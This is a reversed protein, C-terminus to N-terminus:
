KVSLAIRFGFTQSGRDGAVPEDGPAEVNLFAPTLEARADFFTDFDGEYNSAVNAWEDSTLDVFIIYRPGASTQVINFSGDTLLLLPEPILERIALHLSDLAVAFLTGGRHFGVAIPLRSKTKGFLIPAPALSKDDKKYEPQLSTVAGSELDYNLTVAAGIEGGEDLVIIVFRIPLSAGDGNAAVAVVDLHCAKTPTGSILGTTSNFTVGNRLGTVTWSTPSNTAELAFDFAQGIGYTEISVVPTIVPVAM